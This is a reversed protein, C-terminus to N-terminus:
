SRSREEPDLSKYDEILRMALEIHYFAHDLLESNPDPYQDLKGYAENLTFIIADLKSDLM